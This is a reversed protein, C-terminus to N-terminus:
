RVRASFSEELAKIVTCLVQNVPTPVGVRAGEAVIKGNIFDVETKRERLIDQLMSSVKDDSLRCARKVNELADDYVLRIGLKGAIEAGEGVAKLMLETASPFDLLRGNRLQTASTVANIGANQLLKSWILGTLNDSAYTKIGATSCPWSM